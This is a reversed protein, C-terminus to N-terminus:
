PNSPSADASARTSRSRWRKDLTDVLAVAPIAMAAVALGLLTPVDHELLDALPRWMLFFTLAALEAVIAM